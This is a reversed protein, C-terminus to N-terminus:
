LRNLEGIRQKVVATYGAAESPTYGSARFADEVQRTSFRGLLEGIWRAHSRPIDHLLSEIHARSEYAPVDVAVLLIPRSHMVFTVSDPEVKKIFKSQTYDGLNDKSRTLIEGTKGFSAGLDNVVYILERDHVDYIANNDTKLDWNNILAMMIKLGDLERTGVFPNHDWSWDGIKKGGKPSRKLRAGYVLGGPFVFNEGRQLKPLGRVRMVPLYYNENTYYGVAWLLRAAAAEPRAEEGLKVKWKTGQADRVEFKPSSGELDEKEFVFPGRPGQKGGPGDHLDETRINAPNHWLVQPPPWHQTASRPAHKTAARVPIMIVLLAAACVWRFRTSTREARESLWGSESEFNMM